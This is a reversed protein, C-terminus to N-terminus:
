FANTIAKRKNNKNISYIMNNFIYKNRLLIPSNNDNDYELTSINLDM